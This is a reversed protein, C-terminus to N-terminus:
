AGNQAVRYRGYMVLQKVADPRCLDGPGGMDLLWPSRQDPVPEPRPVGLFSGSVLCESDPTRWRRSATAPVLFYVSTNTEDTFAAGGLLANGLYAGMTRRDVTQAAAEVVALPVRVATFTGGCGLLAAGLREWERRAKDRNDAATLLWHEVALRRESGSVVAGTVPVRNLVVSTPALQTREAM